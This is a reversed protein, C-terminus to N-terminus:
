KAAQTRIDKLITLLIGDPPADKKDSYAIGAGIGLLTYAGITTLPPKPLIYYLAITMLGIGLDYHHTMRWLLTKLVKVEKGNKRMKGFINMGAGFHWGFSLGFYLAIATVGVANPITLSIEPM